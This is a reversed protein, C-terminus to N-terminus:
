LFPWPSSMSVSVAGGEGFGGAAGSGSVAACAGEGLVGLFLAAGVGDGIVGLLLTAAFFSLSAASAAVLYM